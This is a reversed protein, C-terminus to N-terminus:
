TRVTSWLSRAMISLAGRNHLYRPDNFIAQMVQGPVRNFQGSRYHKVARNFAWTAKFRRLEAPRSLRELYPLLRTVTEEAAAEGMEVQYQFLQDNLTQWLSKDLRAQRTIAQGIHAEAVEPRQWILGNLGSMLYARSLIAERYPTLFTLAPPLDAFFHRLPEEPDGGDRISAHSLFQQLSRGNDALWAPDLRVARELLHHALEIEAQVAAQYGWIIDHEAYAKDRLALVNAPCRPDAFATDLARRYTAIKESLHGFHRGTHIQRYGLAQPVGAFHCGELLLRIHFNLDESNRIFSEDFLGVREAWERRMVVDSPAFPYGTVLDALSVTAPARRLFLVQGDPNVIFRSNYALGVDPNDALFATQIELKRPHYKDDSDLFALLRGQSARIGTNRAGPLGKNEQYIYRVRADTFRNVVEATNDKSGDDVVIVEFDTYTQDLVSQICASVYDAYNYSPIIVSVHPRSQGSAISM